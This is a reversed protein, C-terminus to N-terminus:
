YASSCDNSVGDVMIQSNRSPVTPVGAKGSRLWIIPDVDFIISKNPGAYHDQGADSYSSARDHSSSADHRLVDLRVGEGGSVRAPRNTLQVGCKRGPLGLIM